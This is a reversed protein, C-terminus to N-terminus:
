VPNSEKLPLHLLDKKSVKQSLFKQYKQERKLKIKYIGLWEIFDRSQELKNEVALNYFDESRLLYKEEFKNLYDELEHISKILEGLTM